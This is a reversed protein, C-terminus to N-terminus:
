VSWECCFEFRIVNAAFNVYLLFDSLLGESGNQKKTGPVRLSIYLVQFFFFMAGFMRLSM